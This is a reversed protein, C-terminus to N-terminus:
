PCRGLSAGSGVRSACSLACPLSQSDLMVPKAKGAAQCAAREGLYRADVHGFGPDNSASDRPILMSRSHVSAGRRTNGLAFGTGLGIVFLILEM